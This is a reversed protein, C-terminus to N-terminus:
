DVEFSIIKFKIVADYDVRKYSVKFESEGIVDFLYGKEDHYIECRKLVEDSADVYKYRYGLDGCESIRWKGVSDDGKFYPKNYKRFVVYDVKYM